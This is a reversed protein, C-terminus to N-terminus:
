ENAYVSDIEEAIIGYLGEVTMDQQLAHAHCGRLGLLVRKDEESTPEINETLARIHEDVLTQVWMGIAATNELGPLVERITDENVNISVTCM